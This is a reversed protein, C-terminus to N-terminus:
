RDDSFAREEPYGEGILAQPACLCTSHFCCTLFPGGGAEQKELAVKKTRVPHKGSLPTTGIKNILSRVQNYYALERVEGLLRGFVFDLSVIGHGATLQVVFLM